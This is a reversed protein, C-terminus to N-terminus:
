LDEATRLATRSLTNETTLTYVYRLDHDFAPAFNPSAVSLIQLNIGDFDFVTLKGGSVYSLQAEGVWSAHGAPADMPLKSQYVYGRDTEIDYVAFSDGNEAIVYQQEISFSVHTPSTVKLLQLPVLVEKPKSKLSGVPDKFLFLRNEGASGAVLYLNDEYIAMDLLYTSGAQVQRVALPSDVGEQVRVVAKGPDAGTTSAYALVDDQATFALVGSAVPQPTPQKISATFVQGSAQDFAYYRDYDGSHLEIKTPTFGLLVSLNVSLEPRERDFMIYESGNAGPKDYQRQLLVHRNDDAWEVLQWSKTTSGAALIDSSLILPLGVPEDEDLDFLDFANQDPTAILLWRQDPSQTNLSPTGSYTKLNSSKLNTPFLLPYDFRQVSGGEVTLARKWPNYGSRKLGIVYQGGPLNMRTNTQDKYLKGNIYADAGKPKSSVYVLGNQIVRGEKDLGFGYARFLLVTATLVLVVAMLAYGIALRIAHEKQKKPDFFDM